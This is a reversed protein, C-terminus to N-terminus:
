RDWRFLRDPVPAELGRRPGKESHAGGYEASRGGCGSASEGCPRDRDRCRRQSDPAPLVGRRRTGIWATKMAERVGELVTAGFPDDPHIVGIKHFNLANWLGNIQERTEDHYSARVNIIWHRLPTYLVQAGTFLGVVPIKNSEAMPVYKVATPTGM